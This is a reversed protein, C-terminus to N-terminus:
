VVQFSASLPAQGTLEVSREDPANGGVYLTFRGPEILREGSDLVVRMAAPDITFSLSKTEGAKFFVRQFGCLSFHPVRVSAEEDKIYVQVVEDGDRSGTNRVSLTLTQPSGAKVTETGVKLGTYAFSTYSLGFGFPYLPKNKLFRYTRGEMSYDTFGPLEDASRYYTIPLRGAPSYQGFILDALAKGGSAGPYWASIIANVQEDAWCVSLASGAGLILITPTGTARVAELLRQQQPPLDLSNKDGCSLETSRHSQEGEITEDLGLCVVAVDSRKAIIVAEAIRDDPKALRHYRDFTKHCGQAWYVRLADGVYDQIGEAITIYRSADGHYNGQLMIRCNSNPGIVAIGKKMNNLNLPLIGDNKLLVLSKQACRLSAERNERTDNRSFDLSDFEPVKDFMGLRLRTRMLRIVAADIDKETVGGTYFADLVHLFTDGCNLDCGNKLALAASDIPTATVKHYKHFDSLAWCDSVFHGDFQWQRRLVETILYTHACSPEGNVMNYAGMVSEVQAEKVCAEFAPLYTEWLDKPSVLANFEERLAEPGSHVAFHKACAATKLYKPHDGQLGRVFAVGLRATLYPDEGYTEQGRGWRPDRFINVNPSWFTLGKFIGRDGERSLANYRARGEDAIIRAVQHMEEADFMAALAISQPFMTATGARAVGHLAEGWWHYAPIGLREIAPANFLLQKAKEAVTMRSVLDEAREQFSRSPDLYLHQEMM